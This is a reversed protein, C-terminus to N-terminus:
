VHNVSGHQATKRSGLNKKLLKDMRKQERQEVEEFRKDFDNPTSDEFTTGPSYKKKEPVIFNDGEEESNLPVLAKNGGVGEMETAAYRLGKSRNIQQPSYFDTLKIVQGPELAEGRSDETNDARLDPIILYRDSRNQVVDYRPAVNVGYPDAVKAQPNGSAASARNELEERLAKQEEKQQIARDKPSIKEPNNTPIAPQSTIEGKNEEMSNTNVQM